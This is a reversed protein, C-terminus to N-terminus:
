PIVLAPTMYLDFFQCTFWFIVPEFEMILSVTSVALINFYDFHMNLINYPLDIYTVNEWKRKYSLKGLM